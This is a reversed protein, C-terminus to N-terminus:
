IICIYLYMNNLKKFFLDDWLFKLSCMMTKFTTVLIYIIFDNKNM